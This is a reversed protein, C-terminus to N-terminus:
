RKALEAVASPTDLDVFAEAYLRALPLSVEPRQWEDSSATAMWLALGHSASARYALWTAELSPLEDDRLDLANHYTAVLDAESARRDEPTLAGQLFYGLDLAHHGRHLVQWDLFGVRGDPLVYTNGVHPDGHLLTHPQREMTAIYKVWCEEIEIASLGRAQEPVSDATRELGVVIGAEMGRWAVLPELWALDDGHAALRDGWFASHLRALGRAGDAAQDITLPRTSDRPDGGRGTVDEMVLLFDLGAEDILALHVAPHEIPLTLSSRFMRSENFLGGTAANLEAHAPDAAKLFVTAPGTGRAYTIAFRARRNTGDDRLVLDVREVEVGPHDAALAATMWDPTLADWNAPIPLETM